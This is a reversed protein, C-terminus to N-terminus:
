EAPRLGCHLVVAPRPLRPVLHLLTDRYETFIVVPERTRRLLTALRRLKSENGAANRAAILLATLLRRERERDALGLTAPWPPPQEAGNLEGASDGLPLTLQEAEDADGAATTALRREVSQALSWASSLMRKHLVGLALLTDASRPQGRETRVAGAYRMLCAHMR